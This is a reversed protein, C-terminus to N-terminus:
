IVDFLVNHSQWLDDVLKKSKNDNIGYDVLFDKLKEEVSLFLNKQIYNESDNDRRVLKSFMRDSKMHLMISQLLKVRRDTKKALKM